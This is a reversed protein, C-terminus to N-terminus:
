RAEAKPRQFLLLAMERVQIIVQLRKPTEAKAKM